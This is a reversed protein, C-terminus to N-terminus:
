VSQTAFHTCLIVKSSDANGGLEVSLAHFPQYILLKKGVSLDLGTKSTFLVWAQSAGPLRDVTCFCKIFGCEYSKSIVQVELVNSIERAPKTSFFQSLELKLNKSYKQLMQTLDKASKLQDNAGGYIGGRKTSPIVKLASLINDEASRLKVTETQGDQQAEPNQPQDEQVVAGVSGESRSQSLEISDDCLLSEDEAKPKATNALSQLLKLTSTDTPVGGSYGTTRGNDSNVESDETIEEIQSQQSM